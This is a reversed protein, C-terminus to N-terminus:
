SPGFIRITFLTTFDRYLLFSIIGGVVFAGATIILGVLTQWIKASSEAIKKPDGGASMFSLGAMLFNFIAYVGAFIVITRTLITVLMSLAAAPSAGFGTPGQPPIVPGINPGALVSSTQTLWILVVTIFVPMSILTRLTTSM